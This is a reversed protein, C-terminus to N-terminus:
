DRLSQDTRKLSYNPENAVAQCFERAYHAFGSGAWLFFLWAAPFLVAAQPASIYSGKTSQAVWFFSAGLNAGFFLLALWYASPISPRFPRGQPWRRAVLFARGMSFFVPVLCAMVVLQLASLVGLSLHPLPSWAYVAFCASLAALAVCIQGSVPLRKVFEKLNGHM